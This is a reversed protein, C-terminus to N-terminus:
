RGPLVRAQDAVAPGPSPARSFTAFEAADAPRPRIRGQRRARRGLPRGRPLCRRLPTEVVHLLSQHDHRAAVHDASKPSPQLRDGRAFCPEPFRSSQIVGSLRSHGPCECDSQLGSELAGDYGDYRLQSRTIARFPSEAHTASLELDRRAATADSTCGPRLGTASRGPLAPSRHSGSSAHTCVPLGTTCPTMSEPLSRSACGGRQRTRM